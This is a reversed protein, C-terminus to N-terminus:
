ILFLVRVTESKKLFFKQFDPIMIVVFAGSTSSNLDTSHNHPELSITIRAAESRGAEIVTSM